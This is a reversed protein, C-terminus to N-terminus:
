NINQKVLKIYRYLVPHEEKVVNDFLIGYNSKNAIKYCITDWLNGNIEEIVNNRLYISKFNTSSFYLPLISSLWELKIKNTIRVSLLNNTDLSKQFFLYLIYPANNSKVYQTNNNKTYTSKIDSNFIRYKERTIHYKSNDIKLGYQFPYGFIFSKIIKEYKSSNDLTRIFSPTFKRMFDIPSEETYKSDSNKMITLIDLINKAYENIFKKIIEYNIGYQNCWSIIESKYNENDNFIEETLISNINLLKEFTRINNKNNDLNLKGNDFNLEGNDYDAKLQEFIQKNLDKPINTNDKKYSTLFTNCIKQFSSYYKNYLHDISTINFINM